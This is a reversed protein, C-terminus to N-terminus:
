DNAVFGECIDYISVDCLLRTCSFNDAEDYWYCCECREGKLMQESSCKKIRIEGM